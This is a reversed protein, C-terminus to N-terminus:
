LGQAVREVGRGPAGIRGGAHAAHAHLVGLVGLFKELPRQLEIGVLGRRQEAEALDAVPLAINAVRALENRAIVLQHRWAGFRKPEGDAYLAARALPDGLLAIRRLEPPAERARGFVLRQLLSLIVSGWAVSMPARRFAARSSRPSDTESTAWLRFNAGRCSSASSCSRKSSRGPPVKTRPM